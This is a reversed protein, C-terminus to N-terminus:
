SRNYFHISSYCDSGDEETLEEDDKVYGLEKMLHDLYAHSHKWDGWSVSIEIHDDTQGIEDFDADHERLHQYINDYEARYEENTM